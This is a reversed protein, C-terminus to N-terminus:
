SSTPCRYIDSQYTVIDLVKCPLPLTNLLALFSYPYIVQCSCPTREENNDMAYKTDGLDDATSTNAINDKEVCESSASCTNNQNSEQTINESVVEASTKKSINSSCIRYHRWVTTRIRQRCIHTLNPGAINEQLLSRTQAVECLSVSSDPAIWSPSLGMEVILGLPEVQRKAAMKHVSRILLSRPIDNLVGTAQLLLMTAMTGKARLLPTCSELLQYRATPDAGHYLLKSILDLCNEGLAVDIPLTFM